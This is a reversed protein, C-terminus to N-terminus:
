QQDSETTDRKLAGIVDTARARPNTLTDLVNAMPASGEVKWQGLRDGLTVGMPAATRPDPDDSAYLVCDEYIALPWAGSDHAATWLKRTLNARAGAVIARHWDPRHLPRGAMSAAGLMGIGGVYTRKVAAVIAREDDLTTMRTDRLLEYWPKLAYHHSPYTYAELIEPMGLELGHALQLTPTAVWGTGDGKTHRRTAPDFPNPLRAHDWNPLRVRWLGPPSGKREFTPATVHQPACTGLSVGSSAALYAGHRDYAHVYARGAEDPDPQRKWAYPLENLSLRSVGDPFDHAASPLLGSRTHATLLSLGTVAGSVVWPHGLALLFRTLRAALEAADAPPRVGNQTAWLECDGPTLWPTIVLRLSRDDDCWLTSWASLGRKGLKWGASRLEGAVPHDTGRKPLGGDLGLRASLSPMLWVQGDEAPAHAYATGLRLGGAWRMLADVDAVEPVDVRGGSPVLVAYDDGVVLASAAFRDNDVAPGREGLPTKRRQAGRQRKPAASRPTRETPTKTVAGTSSEDAGPTSEPDQTAKEPEPARATKEASAPGSASAPGDPHDTPLDLPGGGDSDPGPEPPTEGNPDDHEGEPYVWSVPVDWVRMRGAPTQRRPHGGGDLATLGASRLASGLARPTVGLPTSAARGAAEIAAHTAHDDLWLRDGGPSEWGIRRAGPAPRWRDNTPDFDDRVYGMAAPSTPTGGDRGEIYAGRTVLASRVLDGAREHLARGSMAVAATDRAAQLGALARDRIRTREEDAIAGADHAVELAYDWGVMADALMAARRADLGANEADPDRLLGAYSEALDAVDDRVTAYGAAVHRVIASTWQARQMPADPLDADMGELLPPLQDSTLVPLYICRTEASGTGGDEGTLVLLGRPPRSARTGGDRKGRGKGYGNYQSRLLQDARSAARAAGTDPALDDALFVSDGAIHRWEELAVNTAAAEGAGTPVNSWSAAPMFHQLALAAVGTKGAGYDGIVYMTAKSPGLAARYAAGLLPAGLRPPLTDLIRLSALFAARIDDRECPPTPLEYGGLEGPVDVVRVGSVPGNAGIAGGAHVYAWQGPTLEHWGLRGYATTVPAAPGSTRRIANVVDSRGQHTRAYAVDPWPLDAIWTLKEFDEIPVADLQVTEGNREAELDVHSTHLNEEGTDVRVLQRVRVKTNLLERAVREGAHAGSKAVTIKCLSDDIEAFEDRIIPMGDPTEDDVSPAPVAAGTFERRRRRETALDALEGPTSQIAGPPTDNQGGQESQSEQVPVALLDAPVDVMEGLRSGAALHDAVDAGKEDLPTHRIAAVTGGAATVKDRVDLAHAYGQPDRDCLVIVQAGSLHRSHNDGANQDDWHGAGNPCTTAAGSEGHEALAATVADACKEGEVVYVPAGSEVAALVAPLNYLTLREPRGIVRGRNNKGPRRWIIEKAKGSRAPEHRCAWGLVTGAEDVYAYEAVQPGLKGAARPKRQAKSGSKPSAGGGLSRSSSPQNAPTERTPDYDDYLHRWTLGLATVVDGSACEHSRCRMVVGSRGGKRLTAKWDVSLSPHQDGHVPCLAEFGNRRTLRPGLGAREAADFVRTLASSAGADGAPLVTM